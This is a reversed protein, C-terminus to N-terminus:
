GLDAVFARLEPNFLAALRVVVKPLTGTPVKSASAGLRSRILGGIQRLELAPGNSLPFRQGAAAPIAMALLRAAAVDRVDVIPWYLHPFGPMRAKLVSQIV